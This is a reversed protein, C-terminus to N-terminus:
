LRNFNMAERKIIVGYNSLYLDEFSVITIVITIAFVV